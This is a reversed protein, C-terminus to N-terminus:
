VRHNTPLTLHTYSVAIFMYGFLSPVLRRIVCYMVCGNSRITWTGQQRVKDQEHQDWNIDEQQLLPNKLKAKVDLVHTIDEIKKPNQSLHLEEPPPDQSSSQGSGM